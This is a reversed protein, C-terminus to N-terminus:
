LHLVMFLTFIISYRNHLIRAVLLPFDAFFSETIHLGCAIFLLAFISNQLTHAVHLKFFAFSLGMYDSFLTFFVVWITLWMCHLFLLLLIKCQTLQMCNLSLLVAIRWPAVHPQMCYKVLLFCPKAVHLWPYELPLLIQLEASLLSIWQEIHTPAHRSRSSNLIQSRQKPQNSSAINQQGFATGATGCGLRLSM